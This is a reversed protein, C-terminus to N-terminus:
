NILPSHPPNQSLSSQENYLCFFSKGLIESTELDNLVKKRAVKEAM